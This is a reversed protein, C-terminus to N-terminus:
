SLTYKCNAQFSDDAGVPASRLPNPHEGGFLRIVKDDHGKKMLEETTKRGAGFGKEKDMDKRKGKESGLDTKKLSKPVMPESVPASSVRVPQVIRFWFSDLNTIRGCSCTLGNFTVASFSARKAKKGTVEDGGNLHPTTVSVPGHGLTMISRTKRSRDASTALRHKQLSHLADRLSPMRRLRGLVRGKRIAEVEIRWSLGCERCIVGDPMESETAPSTIPCPVPVIGPEVM